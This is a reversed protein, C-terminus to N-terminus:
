NVIKLHVGYRKIQEYCYMLAAEPVYRGLIDLM